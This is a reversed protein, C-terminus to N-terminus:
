KDARESVPFPIFTGKKSSSLIGDAIELTSIPREIHEEISHTSIYLPVNGFIFYEKDGLRKIQKAIANHDFLHELTDLFLFLGFRKGTKYDYISTKEASLGLTDKIFKVAIESIDLGTWREKWWPNLRSLTAAHVACGCGVELKELAAYESRQWLADLVKGFKDLNMKVQGNPQIREVWQEDWYNKM